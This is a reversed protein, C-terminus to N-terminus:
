CTSARRRCSAGPRSWSRSSRRPRSRTSRTCPTRSRCSRPAPSWVSTNARTLVTIADLRGYHRAIERRITDPYASVNMHEQAVRIVSAPTRRASILSLAPRTTVLIGDRLAKCYDMVAREVQETFYGAAFEGRPVVKGRVRRWARRAISDPSRGGRQDVLATVAVRPDIWFQPRDRRRVVSVLEVEHGAAVMANAQDVVARITGGMGYAHLLLYRIRHVQGAAEGVTRQGNM